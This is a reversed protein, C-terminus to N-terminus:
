GVYVIVFRDPNIEPYMKAMALELRLADPDLGVVSKRYVAAYQKQGSGVAFANIQDHIWNWDATNEAQDRETLQPREARLSMLETFWEEREAYWEALETQSVAPPPGDTAPAHTTLDANM